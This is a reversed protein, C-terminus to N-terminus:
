FEMLRGLSVGLGKAIKQLNKLTVNKEGREIMGIYTRHLGCLRSFEEQSYGKNLRLERLHAGFKELVPENSM